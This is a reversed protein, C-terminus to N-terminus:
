YRVAIINALKVGHSIHAFGFQGIMGTRSANQRPNKWGHGGHALALLIYPEYLTRADAQAFDILNSMEEKSPNPSLKKADRLLDQHWQKDVWRALGLAAMHAAYLPEASLNRKDYEIHWRLQEHSEITPNGIRGMRLPDYLPGAAMLDLIRDIEALPAQDFKAQYLAIFPQTVTYIPKNGIANAYKIADRVTTDDPVAYFVCRGSVTPPPTPPM